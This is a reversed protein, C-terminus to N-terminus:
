RLAFDAEFIGFNLRVRRKGTTNDETTSLVPQKNNRFPSAALDVMDVATIQQETKLGESFSNEGFSGEMVKGVVQRFSLADNSVENEQVKFGTFNSETINVNPGQAPLSVVAQLDVDTIHVQPNTNKVPKEKTGQFKSEIAMVNPFSTTAAQPLVNKPFGLTYSLAMEAPQHSIESGYRVIGIGLLVIISAAAAYRFIPIIVPSHKLKRKSPFLEGNHSVTMKKFYEFESVLFPNISLFKELESKQSSVLDGERSAIFVEEYNTETISGVPKIEKKLPLKFPLSGEFLVPVDISMEDLEAKLDPNLSLFAYLEAEQGSSLRGDLFDMFWIEYNDKGIM